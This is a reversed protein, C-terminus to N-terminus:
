PFFFLHFFPTIYVFFLLKPFTLVSLTSSFSVIKVFCSKELLIGDGLGPEFQCTHVHNGAPRESRSEPLTTAITVTGKPEYRIQPYANREISRHSSNHRLSITMVQPLHFSPSIPSIAFIFLRGPLSRPRPQPVQGGQRQWRASM